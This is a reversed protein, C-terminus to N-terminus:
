VDGSLCAGFRRRARRREHARKRSAEQRESPIRVASITTFKAFPRDSGTSRRDSALFGPRAALSEVRRGVTCHNAKLQKQVRRILRPIDSDCKADRRGSWICCAPGHGLEELFVLCEALLADSRVLSAAGDHKNM